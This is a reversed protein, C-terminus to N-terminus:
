SRSAGGTYNVKENKRKKWKKQKKVRMTAGEEEIGEKVGRKRGRGASDNLIGLLGNKMSKSSLM